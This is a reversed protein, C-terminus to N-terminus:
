VGRRVMGLDKLAHNLSPTLEKHVYGVLAEFEPSLARSAAAAAEAASQGAPKNPLQHAKALTALLKYARTAVRTQLLVVVLLIVMVHLSKCPCMFAQPTTNCSHVALCLGSHLITEVSVEKGTLAHPEPPRRQALRLCPMCVV